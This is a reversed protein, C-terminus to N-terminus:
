LVAKLAKLAAKCICLEPTEDRIFVEENPDFDEPHGELVFRNDIIKCVYDGSPSDDKSNIGDCEINVDFGMRRLKEVVEWADSINSSFEPPGDEIMLFQERGEPDYWNGRCDPCEDDDNQKFGMVRLAVLKDLEPGAEMSDIDQENM